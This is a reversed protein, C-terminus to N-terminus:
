KKNHTECVPLNKYRSKMCRTGSKTMATCRDVIDSREFQYIFYSNKDKNGKKYIHIEYSHWLHDLKGGKMAHASGDENERFWLGTHHHIEDSLSRNDFNDLFEGDLDGGIFRIKSKGKAM